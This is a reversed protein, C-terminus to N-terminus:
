RDPSDPRGSDLLRDVYCDALRAMRHYTRRLLAHLIDLRKEPNDYRRAGYLLEAKVVSCFAVSEPDISGLRAIPALPQGKLAYIWM